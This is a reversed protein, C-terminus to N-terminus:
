PAVRESVGSVLRVEAGDRLRQQGLTVVHGSLPADAEVQVRGESRLGVRVPVLRARSDEVVFIADGGRSVLAEEPVITADEVRELSTRARVFMGPSLAGAANPVEIEIRAQRSEPDFAPAVRAVEGIAEEGTPGQLRVEQGPRLRAHDAPSAMVAVVLPDTDVLTFLPDGVGVRAGEDVHREGVRRPGAEESWHGVVETRERELRAGSWDARARALEARAIALAGEAEAAAARADDLARESAIGRDALAEARALARATLEQSREAADARARAVTHAARAAAESQRYARADLTALPQGPDVEDALDVHVRLVTGAVEAAVVVRASPELAGSLVRLATLPGQEIPAVEVPVPGRTREASAPPEDDFLWRGTAVAAIAAPIVVWTLARKLRAPPRDDNPV